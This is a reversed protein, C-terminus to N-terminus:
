WVYALCLTNEVTYMYLSVCCGLSSLVHIISVMTLRLDGLLVWLDKITMLGVLLIVFLGVWKVSLPFCMVSFLYFLTLSLCLHHALRMVCGLFVGTLSM